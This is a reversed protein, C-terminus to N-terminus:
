GKFLRDVPEELVIVVGPYPVDFSLHSNIWTITAIHNWAANSYNPFLGRDAM